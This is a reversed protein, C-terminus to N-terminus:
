VKTQAMSLSPCMNGGAEGSTQITHQYKKALSFFSNTNNYNSTSLQTQKKDVSSM